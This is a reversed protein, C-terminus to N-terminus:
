LKLGARLDKWHEKETDIPEEQPKPKGMGFLSMIDVKKPSEPERKTFKKPLPAIDCPITHPKARIRIRLWEIFEM